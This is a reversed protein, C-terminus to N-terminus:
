HLCTHDEEHDKAFIFFDRFSTVIGNPKSQEREQGWPRGFLGLLQNQVELPVM